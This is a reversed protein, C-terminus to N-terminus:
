AEIVALPQGPMIEEGHGVSFRQFTGAVEAKVENFSKMIEVLGIVDGIAVRDGPSKFVPDDPSPRHYFIGPLPSLIEIAAM